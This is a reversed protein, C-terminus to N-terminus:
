ERHYPTGRLISDCRYLQECLVALAARHPLTMSSLSLLLDARERVAQSLGDAAGIVFDVNRQRHEGLYASFVMSGMARGREDLAVLLADKRVRALLNDGRSEKLAIVEVPM